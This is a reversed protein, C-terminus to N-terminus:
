GVGSAHENARTTVPDLMDRWEPGQPREVRVASLEGRQIRRRITKEGVDLAQALEAVSVGAATDQDHV